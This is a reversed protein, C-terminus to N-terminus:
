GSFSNQEFCPVEFFNIEFFLFDDGIIEISQHHTLRCKEIEVGFTVPDAVTM